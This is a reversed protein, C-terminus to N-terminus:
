GKGGVGVEVVMVVMVVMVMLVFLTLIMSPQQFRACADQYM